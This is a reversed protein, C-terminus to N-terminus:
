CLFGGEGVICCLCECKRFSILSNILCIVLKMLFMPWDRSVHVLQELESVGKDAM